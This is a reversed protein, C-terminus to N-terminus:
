VGDVSRRLSQVSLVAGYRGDRGHREDVSPLLLTVHHHYRTDAPDLTIRDVSPDLRSRLSM